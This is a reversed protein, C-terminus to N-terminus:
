CENIMYVCMIRYESRPTYHGCVSKPSLSIIQNNSVWPWKWLLDIYADNWFSPRV